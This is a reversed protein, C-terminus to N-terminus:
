PRGWNCQPRGETKRRAKRRVESIYAGTLCRTQSRTAVEHGCAWPIRARHERICTEALVWARLHVM